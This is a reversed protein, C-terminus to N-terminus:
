GCRRWCASTVYRFGYRLWLPNRDFPQGIRHHSIICSFKQICHCGGSAQCHRWIVLREPAHLDTIKGLTDVRMFRGDAGAAHCVRNQAHRWGM